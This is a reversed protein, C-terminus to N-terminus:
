RCQRECPIGDGDGDINPNRCRNLQYRAEACSMQGCWKLTNCNFGGGSSGINSHPAQAKPMLSKVPSETTEPHDDKRWEWPPTQDSSPQSWLGRQANKASAELVLLSKDELDERYAWAAGARIQEANIDIGDSRKARTVSRGHSDTETVDLRVMEGSILRSLSQKSHEGYPQNLEPADIEALKITLLDNEDTFCTFTDGDIVDIVKCSDGYVVSSTLVLILFFFRNM